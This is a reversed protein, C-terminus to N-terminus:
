AAHHVAFAASRVCLGYLCVEWPEGGQILLYPDDDALARDLLDVDVWDLRSYSATPDLELVDDLVLEATLMLTDEPADTECGDVVDRALAVSKATGRARGEVLREALGLKRTLLGEIAYSLPDALSDEVSIRASEMPAVNAFGSFDMAEEDTVGQRALLASMLSAPIRMTPTSLVGPHRRSTETSRRVGLLVERRSADRYVCASIVCTVADLSTARIPVIANLAPVNTPEAM